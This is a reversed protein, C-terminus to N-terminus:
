SAFDGSEWAFRSGRRIHTKFISETFSHFIHIAHIIGQSRTRVSLPRRNALNVISHQQCRRTRKRGELCITLISDTHDTARYAYTRSRNESDFLKTRTNFPIASTHLRLQSLEQNGCKDQYAAYRQVELQTVRECCRGTRRHVQNKYIRFGASCEAMRRFESFGDRYNRGQRASCGSIRRNKAIPVLIPGDFGIRRRDQHVGEHTFLFRGETGIASPQDSPVTRDGRGACLGRGGLSFPHRLAFFYGARRWM